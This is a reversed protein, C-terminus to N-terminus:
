RSGGEGGLADPDIALLRLLAERGGPTVIVARSTKSRRAWERTFFVDALHAGVGGGLHVRRETWDLCARTSSRRGPVYPADLEDELWSRGRDTLDLAGDDLVGREILADTVAVGLAGAFHDYCTRARALGARTTAQRWSRVPAAPRRGLAAVAELTSAVESSALRVYRHRGQRHEALLGLNVLRNLHETATSAAVGAHDALERATWARGDMLAVLMHARTPEAMAAAVAALNEATM